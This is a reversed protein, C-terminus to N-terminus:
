IHEGKISFIIGLGSEGTWDRTCLFYIEEITEKKMSSLSVAV